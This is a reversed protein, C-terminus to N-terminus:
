EMTTTTFSIKLIKHLPNVTTARSCVSDSYGFYLITIWEAVVISYRM